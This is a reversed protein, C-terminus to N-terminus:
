HSSVRFRIQKFSDSNVIMYGLADLIHDVDNRKDPADNHYIQTQLSNSLQQCKNPNVVLSGEGFAKTVMNVRERVRINPRCRVTFGFQELIQIDTLDASTKNQKGSYDPFIKISANPFKAKLKMASDKTDRTNVIEDIIKLKNDEWVGIVVAGKTWNFDIGVLLNFDTRPNYERSTYHKGKDYNHYVLGSTMNIFQGHRYAKLQAPSYSIEMDKIYDESLYTNVDSSEQILKKKDQHEKDKVFFEYCFKFGEPSSVVDVFNIGDIPKRTRGVIAVFIDKMHQTPINDAEDIISACVQYGIIKSPEDMSRLMIQGFDTVFNHSTRNIEFDIKLMDLVETLTVYGVDKLLRIQPLYYAVNEKHEIMTLVAKVCGAFTKGAGLGCVLGTHKKDSYLFDYQHGFLELEVDM